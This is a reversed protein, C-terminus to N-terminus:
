LAPHPPRLPRHRTPVARPIRLAATPAPCLMPLRAACSTQTELIYLCFNETPPPTSRPQTPLSTSTWLM